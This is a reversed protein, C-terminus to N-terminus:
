VLRLPLPLHFDRYRGEYRDVFDQLFFPIDRLQLDCRRRLEHAVDESVTGRGARRPISLLLAFPIAISATWCIRSSRKSVPPKLTLRAGHSGSGAASTTSCSIFTTIM